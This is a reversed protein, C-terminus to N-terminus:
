KFNLILKNESNEKIRDESFYSDKYEGNAWLKTEDERNKHFLHETEGSSNINQMTDFDNLDIILRQSPGFNVEYPADWAFGNVNITSMDGSVSYKKSNVIKEILNIGCNGLAMDALSVTHKDGWKLKSIDKENKIELYDMADQLSKLIMTDRDEVEETGKEDFWKSDKDKMISIIFEYHFDSYDLFRDSASSENSHTYNLKDNIVNKILFNYWVEYLLAESSDKDLNCNWNSLKDIVKQQLDDDTNVQTIYPVLNAAVQSYNDLQIDKMDDITLDDKESLLKRIRDGRYNKSWDDSIYYKYDEPVIKNNATAIYGEEPNYESPLEEYPIYGQWEYEGTWGPIPVLGSVKTTRLPIKAAAQYGINGDVDAYVFNQAANDWIKLASRFQNWNQAQNVENMSKIINSGEFLTWKLSMPQENGIEISSNVIPGHNTYYLNYEVDESDRVHITDTVKKIDYWENKYYYKTPNDVDDLKELYLDQVDATLNTIGWAIRNNHGIIVLPLGALTYGTCNYNPSHLGNEYWMSPMQLNLHTDNALIPKKSATKKGSVVWNNSGWSNSQLLIDAVNACIEKKYWDYNNVENPITIQNEENRLFMENVASDGLKNIIEARMMEVLYNYSMFLVMINSTVVVDKETWKDPKLGLVKFEAALSDENENIYYNVGDIYADIISKTNDDMEALVKEASTELGITRLYKDFEVLDKGSLESLRGEGMRRNIEMQWLRDQAQVYGQAFFLSYDNDAYIQPIGYNDRYIEVSSGAALENDINELRGEYKPWSSRILVVFLVILLIIIILVLSLISIAVKKAKKM